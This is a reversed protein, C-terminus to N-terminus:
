RTPEPKLDFSVGCGCGTDARPNNVIRFYSGILESVHDISAGAVYPLSITDVVIRVGDRTFLM